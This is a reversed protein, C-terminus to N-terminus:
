ETTKKLEQTRKLTKNEVVKKERGRLTWLDERATRLEQERVREQEREIEKRDKAPIKSLGLKVNNELAKM